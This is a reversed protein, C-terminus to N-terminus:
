RSPYTSGKRVGVPKIVVSVKITFVTDVEEVLDKYNVRDNDESPLEYVKELIDLEESRL